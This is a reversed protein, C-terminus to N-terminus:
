ALESQLKDILIAVRLAEVYDSSTQAAVYGKLDERLGAIFWEVKLEKTSVYAPSFRAM